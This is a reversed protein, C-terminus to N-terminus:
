RYCLFAQPRLPATGAVRQLSLLMGGVLNPHHVGIRVGRDDCMGTSCSPLTDAQFTRLVGLGGAATDKMAKQVKDQMVAQELFLRSLM